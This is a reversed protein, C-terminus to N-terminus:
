ERGDKLVGGFYNHEFVLEGKFHIEEHGKFNSIDGTFNNQYEWDGEKLEKPGRPQFQTSKEGSRMAVKLFDFTEHAFKADDTKDGRMGGAYSCMWVPEDKYWIIEQGHSSLYGAYSDRYYYDGEGFELDAFGKKDSKIYEGGGAYTALAAKALFENLQQTNM